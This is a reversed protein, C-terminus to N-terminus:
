TRFLDLIRSTRRDLLIIHPGLIVRRWIEPIDPLRRELDVPLPELRKQLGPPLIGNRRLQRQLGPPLNGGRKALGPPLGRSYGSFFEQIIQREEHLFYPPHSRGKASSYESEEGKLRELEQGQRDLEARSQELQREQERERQEQAQIQDGVLAGAGLGLAGGIAAGAGTHGTASGIIAGTAAGVGTGVLAGKERTSLPASCGVGGMLAVVLLWPIIPHSRTKM